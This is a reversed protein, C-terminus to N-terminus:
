HPTHPTDPLVDPPLTASDAAPQPALALIRDRLDAAIEEHALGAAPRYPKGYRVRTRSPTLFHALMHRRRPTGEIWCPVIMVDGRRAIMGVGPQFPNLERRERQLRGEPFLGVVDGGRLAAIVKRLQRADGANKELAIPQIRNWGWNLAPFLHEALMVWRIVRPLPAQLILPDIATTHNSALLVGGTHPVHHRGRWELGHWILCYLRDIHWLTNLCPTAAPGRVLYRVLGYLGVLMLAPGLVYLARLLTADARPLQWIAFYTAVSFLTNLMSNAGMVRGRVYDASLCQLLTMAAILTVNGFLGIGFCFVYGLAPM